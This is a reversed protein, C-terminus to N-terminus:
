ENIVAVTIELSSSSAPYTVINLTRDVNVICVVENPEISFVTMGHFVFFGFLVISLQKKLWLESRVFLIIIVTVVALFQSL